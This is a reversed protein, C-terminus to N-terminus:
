QHTWVSLNRTFCTSTNATVSLAQLPSTTAKPNLFHAELWLTWIGSGVPFDPLPLLFARRDEGGALGWLRWTTSSRFSCSQAFSLFFKMFKTMICTLPHLLSPEVQKFKYSRAATQQTVESAGHTLCACFQSVQLMVWCWPCRPPRSWWFGTHFGSNRCISWSLHFVQFTLISLQNHMQSNQM